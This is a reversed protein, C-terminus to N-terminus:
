LAVLRNSVVKDHAWSRPLMCIWGRGSRSFSWFALWCSRQAPFGQTGWPEKEFWWRKTFAEAMVPSRARPSPALKLHQRLFGAVHNVSSDPVRWMLASCNALPQEGTKSIYVKQFLVVDEARSVFKFFLLMCAMPVLGAVSFFSLFTLRYLTCISGVNVSCAWPTPSSFFLLVVLGICFLGLKCGWSFSVSCLAVKVQGVSAEWNEEQIYIYYLQPTTFGTLISAVFWRLHCWICSRSVLHSTKHCSEISCMWSCLHFSWREWCHLWCAAGPSLHSEHKLPPTQTSHPPPIVWVFVAM